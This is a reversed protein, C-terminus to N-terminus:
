RSASASTRRASSSRTTCRPTGACCRSSRRPTSRRAAALQHLGLRPRARRDLRRRQLPRPRGPVAYRVGGVVPFTRRPRPRTRTTASRCTARARSGAPRRPARRSRRRLDQEPRRTSSMAFTGTQATDGSAADRALRARRDGLRRLRRRGDRAARARPAGAEHAALPDRRGLRHRLPAVPRVVTPAARRRAPARVRRGGADLSTAARASSSRRLVDAPDLKEPKGQLVVTGGQHLAGFALWQAAGHMLPPTTMVRMFGGNSRANEVLEEVTPPGPTGPPGGTMAGHISTRRGGSCARRRAPRAAPTSSTSTTRRRSSRRAADRLAPSRRRTTSRARCCRSARRRGDVQLLLRLTPLATASALSRRRTARRTSSRRRRRRRRPPLAARRRRLPLQRQVARGARRYAGLMSELYEPCNLMYIGLHDQGSEHNALAARERRCGLGHRTSSTRSGARASPSRATPSRPPDPHRHVRPRPVLPSRRSTGSPDNAVSGTARRIPPTRRGGDSPLAESRKSGPREPRGSAAGGGGAEASDRIAPPDPPGTGARARFLGNVGRRAVPRRRAM